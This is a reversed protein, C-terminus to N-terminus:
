LTLLKKNLPFTAGRGSSDVIDGSYGRSQCKGRSNLQRQPNSCSSKKCEVPESGSALQKRSRNKRYHLDFAELLRFKNLKDPLFPTIVDLKNFLKLKGISRPFHNFIVLSGFIGEEQIKRELGHM